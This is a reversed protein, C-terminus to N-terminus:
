LYWNLKRGLFLTHGRHIKRAISSVLVHEKTVKSHTALQVGVCLHDSMMQVRKIVAEMTPLVNMWM